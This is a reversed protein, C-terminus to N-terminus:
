FYNVPRPQGVNRTENKKMKGCEHKHNKGWDLLQHGRSCYQVQNCGSCMKVPYSRGCLKCLGDSINVIDEDFEPFDLPPQQMRMAQKYGPTNMADNKRNLFAYRWMLLSERYAIRALLCSKEWKPTDPCLAKEADEASTIDKGGSLLKINYDVVESLLPLVKTEYLGSRLRGSNFNRKLDYDNALVALILYQRASSIREPEYGKYVIPGSWRYVDVNDGVPEKAPQLSILATDGKTQKLIDLPYDSKELCRIRLKDTPIFKPPCWLQVDCVVDWHHLFDIPIEGYKAAFGTPTVDGFSIILEEGADIDRSAYVSSCALNCQNIFADGRVINPKVCHVVGNSLPRSLLRHVYLSNSSVYAVKICM